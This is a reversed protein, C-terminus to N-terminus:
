FVSLDIVIKVESILFSQLTGNKHSCYLEKHNTSFVNCKNFLLIDIAM